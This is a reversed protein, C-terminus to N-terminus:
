RPLLGAIEHLLFVGEVMRHDRHGGSRRPTNVYYSIMIFYAPLMSVLFLLSPKFKVAFSKLSSVLTKGNERSIKRYGWTKHLAEYLSLFVAFFTLSMMLTAYSQYHTLYTAILLVYMVGINTLTLEDRHRWWYGLTFFFLSMSLVFNYFGMHLLYNYAFIFGVLGFLTKGKQVGNLFYFLSLPLLGICISILIKECIIPPFVYMLLALFAHSSWNPFLTLNLEYVERLRYNEHNHYEKLIYSNYIHSAGDQTPFYSFVWVPLLHIVLLTIIILKGVSAGGAFDHKTM